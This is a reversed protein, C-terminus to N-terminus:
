SDTDSVGSVEEEDNVVVSLPTLRLTADALIAGQFPMHVMNCRREIAACLLPDEPWLEAPTYNSTVIFRHHRLKTTGGKTEGVCPHLDMWIKLYHSLVRGFGDLDDLLITTQGDYGDFWKNQAKLYIDSHCVKHYVCSTKGVGPPGHIWVGRCQDHRYYDSTLHVLQQFGRYYKVFVETHNNILDEVSGGQLVLDCASRLDSRTGQAPEDGFEFPGDVRTESKKCYDRAQQHTGRRIEFHARPLSARVCNLSKLDAFVVYGQVHLTEQNSGSELQYVLYRASLHELTLLAFDADTPNNITFLWNRSRM